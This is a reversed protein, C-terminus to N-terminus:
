SSLSDWGTVVDEYVREVDRDGNVARLLNREAYYAKLPETERHYVELRRRVTEPRDDERQVLAGGCRDCTDPAKPPRTDLNFLEGCGECTRRKGLRNIIAEDPVEISIVEDLALEMEGLLHDLGEAQAITRPFGDLIFGGRYAESRFVERILDLVVEDPVLQGADMYQRAAYGLDTGKEIASRLIDGTSLQRGGRRKEILKAQTGKGSGPGGLLVVRM